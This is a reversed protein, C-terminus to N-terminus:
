RYFQIYKVLIPTACFQLLLHKARPLRRLSTAKVVNLTAGPLFPLFPTHAGHGRFLFVTLPKPM